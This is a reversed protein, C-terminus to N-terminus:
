RRCEIPIPKPMEWWIHIPLCPLICIWIHQIKIQPLFTDHYKLKHENFTEIKDYSGIWKDHWNFELKIKMAM